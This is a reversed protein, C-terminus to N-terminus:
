AAQKEILPIVPPQGLSTVEDLIEGLLTQELSVLADAGSAGDLVRHDIALRVHLGGQEDFLGYHLLSAGLPITNLIGAGRDCVSTIGFTGFNHARRRGLWHISAWMVLRRLFRPLRSARRARRYSDFTEVPLEMYRRLIDDLETLSRNEPSRILAQLIVDEDDVRRYINVNAINKPHEYYRPWPFDLYCRRLLPQRAAVLGYAKILISTWMPARECLRRAAILPALRMTRDLTVCPVKQSFHLLDIVLNRFPSITMSKGRKKSM